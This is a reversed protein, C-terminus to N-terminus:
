FPIEDDKGYNSLPNSFEVSDITEKANANEEPTGEAPGGEGEFRPPRRLYERIGALQESFTPRDAVDTTGLRKFQVVSYKVMGNKKKDLTLEVTATYLPQRATKFASLFRNSNSMSSSQISLVGAHDYDSSGNTSYLLPYTHRETCRPKEDKGKVKSWRAFPCDKCNITVRGHEDKNQGHPNLGAEDWPFIRDEDGDFSPYGTQADNSKCQPPGLEATGKPFMARQKIMGLPVGTLTTFEEGSNGDKFVGEDGVIAIRPMSIRTDDFDELGDISFEDDEVIAPLNDSM